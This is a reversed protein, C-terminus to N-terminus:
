YFISYYWHLPSWKSQINPQKFITSPSCIPWKPRDLSASHPTEHPLHHLFVSVTQQPIIGNNPWIRYSSTACCHFVNYPLNEIYVRNNTLSTATISNYCIPHKTQRTNHYGQFYHLCWPSSTHQFMSIQYTHIPLNHYKSPICLSTHRIFPSLRSFQISAPLVELPPPQHPVM